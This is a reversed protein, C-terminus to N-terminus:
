GFRQDEKKPTKFLKNKLLEMDQSVKQELVKAYIQTTRIDKHGLMASVTEIPVGNALTVTTAFTHRAIHTTIKKKIGCIEAIEKLYGNYRQNSNVPLLKDYRLCYPHDRYKEIIELPIPLLPVNEKTGTKQRSTSLWTNGDIGKSVANYPFKYVDVYAFGTYCCFIFIDRVENLREIGFDKQILTDLEEQTLVIREPAEYSCKFQNIPNVQLWEMAVALNMVKKLNKIYKHATNTSVRDMTILYHDFESAFKFRIESLNMDTRKYQYKMFAEIKKKTIVYRIYTKSAIKGIKLQEEMKLNHYEFIDLISKEKEQPISDAGLFRDKIDAATIPEENILAKTYIARLEATIKELQVNLTNAQISNGLCRQKSSSWDKEKLYHKISFNARKGDIVIRVYLAFQGDKMKQKNLWYQIIFKQNKIM